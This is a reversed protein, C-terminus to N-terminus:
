YKHVIANRLVCASTTEQFPHGTLTTHQQHQTHHPFVLDFGLCTEDVPLQYPSPNRTLTKLQATTPTKRRSRVGTTDRHRSRQAAPPFCQKLDTLHMCASTPQRNNRNTLFLPPARPHACKGTRRRDREPAKKDRVRFGKGRNTKWKEAGGM